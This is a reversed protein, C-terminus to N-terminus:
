KDKYLSLKNLKLYIKDDESIPGIGCCIVTGRDSKYYGEDEILSCAIGRAKALNYIAEAKGFTPISLLVKTSGDDEWDKVMAIHEPSKNMRTIRLCEQTAHSAHIAIKATIYQGGIDVNNIAIIYQKPKSKLM